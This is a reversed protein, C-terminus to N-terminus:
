SKRAFGGDSKGTGRCQVCRKERKAEKVVGKGRCRPCIGVAKNPRQAKTVM